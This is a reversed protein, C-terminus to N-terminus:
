CLLAIGILIITSPTTNEVAVIGLVIHMGMAIVGLVIAGLAFIVGAVM